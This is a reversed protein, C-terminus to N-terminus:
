KDKILLFSSLISKNKEKFKETSLNSQYAKQMMSKQFTNEQSHLQANAKEKEMPDFSYQNRANTYEQVNKYTKMKSYDNESVNFVTEDQHAKRLDNFKLKSFPDSCKYGTNEDQDEYFNNGTTSEMNQVGKYPIINHHKTKLEEFASTINKNSVSDMNYRSEKSVFWDNQSTDVKKSMNEEFLQNFKNQFNDLGMKKQSEKLREELGSNSNGNEAVYEIDENPVQISHKQKETYFHYLIDFAKKYFLFYKADLKSKDPHLSMVRKKANKLDEIKLDFSVSFLDLLEELSYSHIDLNHNDM